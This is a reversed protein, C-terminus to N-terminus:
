SYNLHGCEQISLISRAIYGSSVTCIHSSKSRPHFHFHLRPRSKAVQHVVAYWVEGDKVMEWLKSVNMDVSNTIGGLWRMGQWGRRKGEVKELMLTKELLDARQMLHGFYQFKLKLMLGELDNRM